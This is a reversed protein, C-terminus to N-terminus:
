NFNPLKLKPFVKEILKKIKKILNDSQGKEEYYGYGYGYYSSNAYSVGNFIIYISPFVKKYNIEKLNSLFVRPTYEHRVIYLCTDIYSGLLAADTVLGLPPTDIIIYDFDKKVEELLLKIRGNAILESPNPPIHGAPILYVNKVDTKYLIEDITAKDILYNSIGKSAVVNLYEQIKPKRLDLGIILIKKDLMGLTSALNATIFSKGEGSISSTVAIVKSKESQTNAFLYQINSRLMRFQEAVLSRSKISIIDGLDKKTKKGIEEFITLGTAKEIEDKSQITKTLFGKIGIVVAPIVFGLLFGLLIIRSRNPSIPTASSFPKDIMRSDTVTSAYSLATEERKKLLLLYLSEKISAQRKIEVYEKEKKPISNISASLRNNLTLLETRSLLISKKQNAITERIALKVNKMQTIITELYPNGSQVTLAMKERELELNSLQNLYGIIVPDNVMLTSPSINKIQDGQLYREISDLVKLQIETENLKTDIEKAKELFINSETSLDTIGRSTRYNEVDQEVSGLENTVLKLRDEIFRLINVAERNKDEISLFSYEELISSLIAKGKEPLHHNFSFAIVTTRPNVLRINLDGILHTILAEKNYLRIKIPKESIHLSTKKTFVRLRGYPTTISTGYNFVGLVKKKKDLIQFKGLKEPLIYFPENYGKQSYESVNISIEPEIFLEKDIPGDENWYSVTLNLKDVVKEALGRSKFVEIENEVLKNGGTLDLDKLAEIDSKVGKNEDKILISANITYIPTTYRLYLFCILETIILSLLFWYKHQMCKKLFFGINIGEETEQGVNLEKNLM